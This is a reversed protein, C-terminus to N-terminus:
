GCVCFRRFELLGVRSNKRCTANKNPFEVTKWEDCGERKSACIEELMNNESVRFVGKEDGKTSRLHNKSYNRM